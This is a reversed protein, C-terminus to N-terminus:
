GEYKFGEFLDRVMEETATPYEAVVAATFNRVLERAEAKHKDYQEKAKVFHDIVGGSLQMNKRMEVVSRETGLMASCREACRDMWYLDDVPVAITHQADIIELRFKTGGLVVIENHKMSYKVVGSVFFDVRPTSM